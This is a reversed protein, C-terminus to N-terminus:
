NDGGLPAEEDGGLSAEDDDGEDSIDEDPVKKNKTKEPEVVKKTSLM